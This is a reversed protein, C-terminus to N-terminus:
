VLSLRNGGRREYERMCAVGLHDVQKYFDCFTKASGLWYDVDANDLQKAKKLEGIYEFVESLDDQYQYFLRSTVFLLDNDNLSTAFNKVIQDSKRASAVPIIGM